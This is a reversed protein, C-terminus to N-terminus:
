RIAAVADDESYIFVIMGGLVPPARKYSFRNGERVIDKGLSVATDEPATVVSFSAGSEQPNAGLFHRKTPEYLCHRSRRM